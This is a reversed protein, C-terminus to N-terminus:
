MQMLCDGAEAACSAVTDPLLYSIPIAAVHPGVSVPVTTRADPVSPVSCCDIPAPIHTSPAAASSVHLDDATAVVCVPLAAVAARLTSAGLHKRNLMYNM